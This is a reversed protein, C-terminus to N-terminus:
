FRIMIVMLPELEKTTQCSHLPMMRAKQMNLDMDYDQGDAYNLAYTQDPDLMNLLSGGTDDSSGDTM